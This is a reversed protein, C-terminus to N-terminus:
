APTHLCLLFPVQPRLDGTRPVLGMVNNDVLAAQSLIARRNLAIAAGIKAFITTGKPFPRARIEQAEAHSLYHNARTLHIAGRKWADSIDVVKYFPFDGASKGQLDSQFASGLLFIALNGLTSSKWGTPLSRNHM